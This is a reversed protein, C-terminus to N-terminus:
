TRATHLRYIPRPPTGEALVIPALAELAFPSDPPLEQALDAAILVEDTRALQQLRRAEHVAAGIVTFTPAAESGIVGATISGRAVGFSIGLTCKLSAQWRGRLRRAAQRMAAAARLARTQDDPGGTPYGFITLTGADDHQALYGHHEQVLGTMEDLYPTIIEGLLEMASLRAAFQELGRVGAYVVVVTGTQPTLVHDQRQPEVLLRALDAPAIRGEFIRRVRAANSPEVMAEFQIRALITVAYAALASVLALSRRSYHRPSPDALTLVGLAREGYLLPVVLVSRMADLGPTPLWRTDRETDEVIDARRERLAWGALGHKLIPGAVVSLPLVTGARLTVRFRVNTEDPELLLLSGHESDTVRAAARLVQELAHELGESATLLTGLQEFAALRDSEREFLRRHMGGQAALTLSGAVSRCYRRQEDNLRHDPPLLLGLVGFPQGRVQMPVGLLAPAVPEPRLTLLDRIQSGAYVTVRNETLARGIATESMDLAASRNIEVAGWAVAPTLVDREADFLLLLAGQLPLHPTLFQATTALAHELTATAALDGALRTLAETRPVAAISQRLTTRMSGIADSPQLEPTAPLDAELLDGAYVRLDAAVQRLALRASMLLALGIILGIVLAVGIAYPPADPLRAEATRILGYVLLGM